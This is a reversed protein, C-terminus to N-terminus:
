DILRQDNGDAALQNYRAVPQSPSQRGASGNNGNGSDDDFAHRNEEAPRNRAMIRKYTEQHKRETPDLGDIALRVNQSTRDDRSNNDPGSEPRYDTYRNASFPVAIADNRFLM